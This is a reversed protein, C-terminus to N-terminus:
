RRIYTCIGCVHVDLARCLFVGIIFGLLPFRFFLSETRIHVVSRVRSIRGHEGQLGDLVFGVVWDKQM